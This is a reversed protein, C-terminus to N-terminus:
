ESLNTTSCNNDTDEDDTNVHASSNLISESEGRVPTGNPDIPTPSESYLESFLDSYDEENTPEVFNASLSTGARLLGGDARLTNRNASLINRAGGLGALAAAPSSGGSSLTAIGMGGPSVGPATVIAHIHIDIGNDGSGGGSGRQLLRALSSTAGSGNDDNSTAASGM